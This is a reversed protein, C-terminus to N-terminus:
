VLRKFGTHAIPGNYLKRSGFNKIDRSITKMTEDLADLYRRVDAASHAYTSYFSRSTLFGKKLMEATIATHIIRNDPSSIEWHSLPPIGSIAVDLGYRGCLERWGRQVMSGIRMLHSGVRCRKHKKLTALAAAPGIRDTWYTSSIFTGQASSMQKRRGIIAAVPYGNGLAKAFVAIDPDIGLRLHIGGTNMRLGSTVEDFVLPIGSRRTISRIGELFGAKPWSSRVPEMIVAAVRKGFREILSKFGDLDNYKFPIATGALGRPVGLPELGPLLQGDLSSREALNASLYWDSWGHYGCFLVLERRSYARAIRVAAAMAEGGTRCYRVMDAWPHIECLLEALEVEEPANLTCMNGREIAKRVASDVDADGYGLTCAGVGSITFDSYKVGDLGWVHIGKCRSYYAPWKDPLFMEPRKSLLQTGGPIIRKAKNYLAQGKNQRM